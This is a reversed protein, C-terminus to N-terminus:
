PTDATLSFIRGGVIDPLGVRKEPGEGCSTGRFRLRTFEVPGRDEAVSEALGAEHWRRCLALLPGLAYPRARCGWHRRLPGRAHCSGTAGPVRGDDCIM